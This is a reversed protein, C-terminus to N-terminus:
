LSLFGCVCVCVKYAQINMSTYKYIAQLKTHSIMGFVYKEQPCSCCIVAAALDGWGDDQSLGEAGGGRLRAGTAVNWAVM